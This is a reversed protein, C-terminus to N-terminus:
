RVELTVFARGRAREADAELREIVPEVFVFSVVSRPEVGTRKVPDPCQADGPVSSPQAGAVRGRGRIGRRFQLGTM